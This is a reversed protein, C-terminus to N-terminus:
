KELLKDLVEDYFPKEKLSARSGPFYVLAIEASTEDFNLLVVSCREDGSLRTNDIMPFDFFGVWFDRDLILEGQPTFVNMRVLIEKRNPDQHFVDVRFIRKTGMSAGRQTGTTGMTLEDEIVTIIGTPSKELEDFSIFARREDGAERLVAIQKTSVERALKFLRATLVEDPKEPSESEEIIRGYADRFLPALDLADHFNYTLIELALIKDKVGGAKPEMFKELVTKFIDTRLSSDAGERQSMLQAYLRVKADLRQQADLARSGLFGLVAVALATLLGGVPKLIVDAKDWGDRVKEAM